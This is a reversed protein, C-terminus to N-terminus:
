ERTKHDNLPGGHVGKEAETGCTCGFEHGIDGASGSKRATELAEARPFLISNEKHVHKHTDAELEKLADLMARYTACAGFPVAYGNTLRNLDALADGAQEHESEMVEIARQISGCPFAPPEASNELAAIYPFLVQEEKLAHSEMEIRFEAFVRVVEVLEPHRGGHANRVKTTLFSLRPLAERLYAHHTGVINDVLEVLPAATWDTENSNPGAAEMELDKLVADVDISLASCSDVLRRKGACCYDIGWREFVRSRSPREAVLRGVTQQGPEVIM